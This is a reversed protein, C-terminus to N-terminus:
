EFDKIVYLLDWNDNDCIYLMEDAYIISRPEFNLKYKTKKITQGTTKEVVHIIGGKILFAYYDDGANTIYEIDNYKVETNVSEGTRLDLIMVENNENSMTAYMGMTLKLGNPNTNSWLEIMDTLQTLKDADKDYVYVTAMERYAARDEICIIIIKGDEYRCEYRDAYLSNRAMLEDLNVLLEGMYYFGWVTSGDETIEGYTEGYEFYEDDSIFVPETEVLEGNQLKYYKGDKVYMGDITDYGELNLIGIETQAPISSLTAGETAPVYCRCYENKDGLKVYFCYYPMYISRDTFSAYEQQNPVYYLLEAYSANRLDATTMESATFAMDYSISVGELLMEKAEEVSIVPYYGILETAMRVDGYSIGTLGLEEKYDFSVQNFYYEIINNATGSTKGVAQYKMDREGNLDYTDYCDPTLNNTPLLDAYKEMLYMVTNNANAITASYSMKYEEPLQVGEFFQVDVLGNGKIKISGLDTMVEIGCVLNQAEESFTARQITSDIIEMNLKSAIDEAMATLEDESLYVTYGSGRYGAIDVYALNRYIPLAAVGEYGNKWPVSSKRYEFTKTSLIEGNAIQILSLIDLDVVSSENGKGESSESETTPPNQVTPNKPWILVAVVLIVICAIAPIQYKNWFQLLMNKIDANTKGDNKKHKEEQASVKLPTETKPAAEELYRDETETMAFLFEAEKQLSINKEVLKSDLKQRLSLVIKEVKSESMKYQMAIEAVSSFYWYHAVFLKREELELGKLFEHIVLEATFLDNEKENVDQYKMQLAHNRTIKYLYAKLNQPRHPPISEWLLEYCEKECRSSEAEDQLIHHAIYSCDAGYKKATEEMAEESRSWYLDIIQKDEMNIEKRLLGNM